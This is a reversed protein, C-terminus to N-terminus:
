TPQPEGDEGAVLMNRRLNNVVLGPPRENGRTRHLLIEAPGPLGLPVDFSGFPDPFNQALPCQRCSNLFDREVPSGPTIM